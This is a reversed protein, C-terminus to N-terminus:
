LVLYPRGARIFSRPRIIAHPSLRIIAANVACGGQSGHPDFVVILVGARIRVPIGQTLVLDTRTVTVSTHEAEPSRRSDFGYRSSWSRAHQGPVGRGCYERCSEFRCGTPPLRTQAPRTQWEAVPAHIAGDRPAPPVGRWEPPAGGKVDCPRSDFGCSRPMFGALHWEEVRCECLGQIGGWELIRTPREAPAANTAPPSAPTSGAGEVHFRYGEAPPGSSAPSLQPPM